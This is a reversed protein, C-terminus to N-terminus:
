DSWVLKQDELKAFKLLHRGLVDQARELGEQSESQASLLVSDASVSITGTAGFGFTITTLGETEVSEQAKHSIHAALQKAYREPRDIVLATCSNLM